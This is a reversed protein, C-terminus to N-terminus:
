YVQCVFEEVDKVQTPLERNAFLNQIIHEDLERFCDIAIHDDELAIYAKGCSTKTIGVLKEGLRSRHLPAIWNFTSM